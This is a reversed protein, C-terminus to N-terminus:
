LGAFISAELGVFQKEKEVTLSANVLGCYSSPKFRLAGDRIRAM